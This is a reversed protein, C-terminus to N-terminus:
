AAVRAACRQTQVGRALVLDLMEAAGHRGLHEADTLEGTASSRLLDDDATAAVGRLFLRLVVRGEDGDEVVDALAGVPTGCDAAVARLAPFVDGVSHVPLVRGEIGAARLRRAVWGTQALAL